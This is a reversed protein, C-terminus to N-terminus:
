LTFHLPIDASAASMDANAGEEQLELTGSFVVM